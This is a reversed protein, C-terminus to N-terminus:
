SQESKKQRKKLGGIAQAVHTLIKNLTAVDFNELWWEKNRPYVLALETVVIDMPSLGNEKQKGELETWKDILIMAAKGSVPTTPNLVLDEGNLCTLELTLDPTEAVFKM